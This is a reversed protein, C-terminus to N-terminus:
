RAGRERGFRPLEVLARHELLRRLPPGVDLRRLGLQARGPGPRGRRQQRPEGADRDRAGRAEVGLRGDRRGPRGHTRRRPGVRRQHDHVRRGRARGRGVAPQAALDREGPVEERAELGFGADGLRPRPDQAGLLAPVRQPAAQLALDVLRHDGVPLRDPALLEGAGRELRRRLVELEGLLFVIDSRRGDELEDIRLDAQGPRRGRADLPQRRDAHGLRLEIADAPADLSSGRPLISPMFPLRHSHIPSPARTTTASIAKLRTRPPLPLLVGTWNARTRSSSMVERTRAGPLISGRMWTLILASMGPLTTRKSTLSPSWTRWPWSM